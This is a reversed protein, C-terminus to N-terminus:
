TSARGRGCRGHRLRGRARPFRRDRDRCYSPHVMSVAKVNPRLSVSRRNQDQLGRRSSRNGDISNARLAYQETINFQEAALGGGLFKRHARSLYPTQQGGSQVSRPNTGPQNSQRNATKARLESVVRGVREKAQANTRENTRVGSPWPRHHVYRISPSQPPLCTRIPCCPQPAPALSHLHHARRGGFMICMGKVINGMALLSSNM